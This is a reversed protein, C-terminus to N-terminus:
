LLKLWAVFESILPIVVKFADDSLRVDNADILERIKESYQAESEIGAFAFTVLYVLDSADVDELSPFIDASCHKRLEVELHFVPRHNSGNQNDNYIM